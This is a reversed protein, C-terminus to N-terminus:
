KRPKKPKKASADASRQGQTSFGTKLSEDPASTIQAVTLQAISDGAKLVFHFPGLNVIELTVTGSWGAHITPATLHVMIGTRAKTSKANVFCILDAGDEPTGVEERTQWLLFGGPKVVIEQGRRYVAADPDTPPSVLYTGGFARYEFSGLWLEPKPIGAAKQGKAFSEVDWVKAESIKDLHLDISTPDYEAPKPRVILRGSEIADRLERNSLYM